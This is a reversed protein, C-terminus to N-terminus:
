GNAPQVPDAPPFVEAPTPAPTWAAPPEGTEIAEGLEARTVYLDAETRAAAADAQRQREEAATSELKRVRRTLAALATAPAPAQTGRLAERYKGSM